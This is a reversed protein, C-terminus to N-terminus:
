VVMAAPVNDTWSGDVITTIPRGPSSSFGPLASGRVLVDLVSARDKRDLRVYQPAWGGWPVSDHTCPGFNSTTAYVPVGQSRIHACDEETLAQELTTILPGHSIPSSGLFHPRLWEHVFALAACAAFAIAFGRVVGGGPVVHRVAWLGLGTALCALPYVYRRWRAPHTVSDSLRWVKFPSFESAVGALLWVPFLRLRHTAVTAVDRWRLCRWIAEAEDLKGAALMVGHIAGVSVGSIAAVPTLGADQLARLCGIQYAGKAGGGTLVVGIRLPQAASMSEVRCSESPGGTAGRLRRHCTGGLIRRRGARPRRHLCLPRWARLRHDDGISERGAAARPLSAVARVPRRRGHHGAHSRPHSRRHAHRKRPSLLRKRGRLRFAARHVHSRVRARHPDRQAAESRLGGALFPEQPADADESGQRFEM